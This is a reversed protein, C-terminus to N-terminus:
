SLTHSLCPPQAMRLVHPHPCITADGLTSFCGQSLLLSSRASTRARGLHVVADPFGGGM